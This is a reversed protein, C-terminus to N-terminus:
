PQIVLKVAEGVWDVKEVWSSELSLAVKAKLWRLRKEYLVREGQRLQLTCDKRFEEAWFRFGPVPVDRSLVNPSVWGLPAEVEVGLRGMSWQAKELWRAISRAAARGELAARDATEVGRLVNGAAFVGVQSTRFGADVQPGMWPKLTDVDARRALENEPIWDGTFVVTDCDLVETRGSDLDTVEVGEVRTRGLINTV